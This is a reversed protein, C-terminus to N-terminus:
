NVTSHTNATTAFGVRRNTTDFVSYFRELFTYGNIFDLGSGTTSGLDGVILYISNANGGIATNLARPWIQANATLEYSVGNVTFFLSQLNAFQAATIRLLGTNADNVAGTASRYRSLADSAILVLTTGTDVIGATSSLISTSAGYRISQNIGWFESAPFTTTIPAFGISGTFKSSDTGGWTIEGNVTDLVTTPNYSIGLLNQTITGQSFLNDTVTPILTNTAPSLTGQTLDVPGIGLIGDVGDFGTSRSAVGISQNPIVLGNGIDVRDIFETGSFSGSGYTVSVSNSTRTSTSTQTYRTTAGVWTNSSGTDILLQFNTPPSGVNVSAIYTVAQNDVPENIVADVNLALGSAKAEARARLAKARAQDAKLLNVSGTFNTKRAFPLSIPSDRITVLPTASASLALLVTTLLAAAPFMEVAEVM